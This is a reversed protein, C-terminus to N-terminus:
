EEKIGKVALRSLQKSLVVLLIGLLLYLLASVLSVSDGRNIRYLTVHLATVTSMIVVLVLGIVRFLVVALKQYHNM